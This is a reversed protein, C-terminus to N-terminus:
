RMRSISSASAPSAARGGGALPHEAFPFRAAGLDHRRREITDLLGVLRRPFGDRAGESFAPEGGIGGFWDPFLSIEILLAERDYPPVRYIGGDPLPSTRGPAAM